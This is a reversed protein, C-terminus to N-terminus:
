AEGRTRLERNIKEVFSFFITATKNLYPGEAGAGGQRPPAKNQPGVGFSNEPSSSRLPRPPHTEKAAEGRIGRRAEEGRLKTHPRGPSPHTGIVGQRPTPM